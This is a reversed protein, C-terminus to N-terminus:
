IAQKPVLPSEEAGSNVQTKTVESATGLEILHLDMVTEKSKLSSVRVGGIPPSRVMRLSGLQTLVSPVVFSPATLPAGLQTAVIGALKQFADGEKSARWGPLARDSTESDDM